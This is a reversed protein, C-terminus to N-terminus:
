AGGEIASLQGFRPRPLRAIFAQLADSPRFWEGHQRESAFRAHIEQEGKFGANPIVGVVRLPQPSAAQLQRLRGEIDASSGIKILGGSTPQIFYVHRDEAVGVERTARIIASLRDHVPRSGEGFFHERLARAAEEKFTKVAPRASSRLRSPQLTALWLTFNELSVVTVVRSQADGPLRVVAHRGWGNTVVKAYQGPWTIGLLEAIPRLIVMPEGDIEVCPIHGDLFPVAIVEVRPAPQHAAKVLASV